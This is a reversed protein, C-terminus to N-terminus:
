QQERHHQALQRPPTIEVETILQNVEVLMLRAELPRAEVCRQRPEPKRARDHRTVGPRHDRALELRPLDWARQATAHPSANEIRPARLMPEGLERQSMMQIIGDLREKEVQQIPPPEIWELCRRRGLTM